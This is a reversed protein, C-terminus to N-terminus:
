HPKLKGSELQIIQDFQKGLLDGADQAEAPKIQKEKNWLELYAFLSGGKPDTIITWQATTDENKPLGKAYEYAKLCRSQLDTVEAAHEAYPETSKAVLALADVKLSTDQQYAYEDFPAITTCATLFLAAVIWASTSRRVYADSVSPSVPDRTSGSRKAPSPSPESQV